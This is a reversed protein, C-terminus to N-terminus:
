QPGHAVLGASITNSSSIALRTMAIEAFLKILRLADLPNTDLAHQRRDFTYHVLLQVVTM